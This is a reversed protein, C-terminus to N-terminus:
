RKGRFSVYLLGSGSTRTYRVRIYGVAIRECNWFSEIDTGSKVAMRYRPFKVWTAAPSTRDPDNCVELDLRGVANTNDLFVELGFCSAHGVNGISTLVSETLLLGNALYGSQTSDVGM